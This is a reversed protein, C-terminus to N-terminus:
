ELIILIIIKKVNKIMFFILCLFGSREIALCNVFPKGSHFLHIYLPMILFFDVNFTLFFHFM